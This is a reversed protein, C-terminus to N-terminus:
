WASPALAPSRGHTSIAVVLEGRRVLAPAIFDCNPIDDVALIPVGRQRAEAAVRANLLGDDDGRLYTKQCDPAAWRVLKETTALQPKSGLVVIPTPVAM